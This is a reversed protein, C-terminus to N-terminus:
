IRRRRAARHKELARRGLYMVIALNVFFLAIRGGRRHRVIAVVEFPLLSGTAVVVLWEGWPRGTHLAYWEFLTFAGDLTLASAAMVIHRSDTASLLANVLELTWAATFHHRVHDVFDALRSTDGELVLGWLVVALGLSFAAKVLKYFLILRLPAEGRNPGSVNM